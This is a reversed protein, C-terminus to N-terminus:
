RVMVVRAEGIVSADVGAWAGDCTMASAKLEMALALCARDGLSLGLTRTPARLMGAALAQERSMPRVDHFIGLAEGVEARTLGKDALKAAVEALNAAGVIACGLVAEVTGVGPEDNLLALIASSDLVIADTL